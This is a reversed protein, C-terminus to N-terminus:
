RAAGPLRLTAVEGLVRTSEKHVFDSLASSNGEELDDNFKQLIEAFLGGWDQDHSDAM